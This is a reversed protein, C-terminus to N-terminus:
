SIWVTRKSKVEWLSGVKRLDYEWGSGSLPGSISDLKVTAATGSNDLSLLAFVGYSHLWAGGRNNDEQYLRIYEQPACAAPQGGESRWCRLIAVKTLDLPGLQGGEKPVVEAILLNRNDGRFFGFENLITPIVEAPTQSAARATPSASAPPTQQVAGTRPTATPAASDPPRTSEPTPANSPVGERPATCGGLVFLLAGCYLLFLRFIKHAGM